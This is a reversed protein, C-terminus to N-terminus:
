KKGGLVEGEIKKRAANLEGIAPGLCIVDAEGVRTEYNASDPDLALNVKEGLIEERVKWAHKASAFGRRRMCDVWKSNITIVTSEEGFRAIADQVKKFSARDATDSSLKLECEIHSNVPTGHLLEYFRQRDEVSLSSAYVANAGATSMRMSAEQRIGVGYGKTRRLKAERESYPIDLYPYPTFHVALPEIAYKFGSRRMCRQVNTQAQRWLEPNVKLLGDISRASARSGQNASCSSLACIVLIWTASLKRTV